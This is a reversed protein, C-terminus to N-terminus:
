VKKRITNEDKNEKSKHIITIQNVIVEKNIVCIQVRQNLAIHENRSDIFKLQKTKPNDSVRISYYPFSDNKQVFNILKRVTPATAKFREKFVDLFDKFEMQCNVDGVLDFCNKHIDIKTECILFEKGRQKYSNFGWQLAWNVNTDWFYYGDGLWANKRTCKFPANLEIYKNDNRDELTQYATVERKM